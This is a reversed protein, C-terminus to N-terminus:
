KRKQEETKDDERRSVNHRIQCDAIEKQEETEESKQGPWTTGSQCDAAEKKKLKLWEEKERKRTGGDAPLMGTIGREKPMLFLSISCLLFLLQIDSRGDYNSECRKYSCRGDYNSEDNTSCWGDIIQSENKAPVGPMMIQSENNIPVGPMM